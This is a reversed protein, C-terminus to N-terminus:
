FWFVQSHYWQNSAVKIVQMLPAVHMILAYHPQQMCLSPILAVPITNCKPRMIVQIRMKSLPQWNELLNGSNFYGSGGGRGRGLIGHESLVCESLNWFICIKCECQLLVGGGQNRRKWLFFIIHESFPFEFEASLFIFEARLFHFNEGYCPFDAKGRNAM